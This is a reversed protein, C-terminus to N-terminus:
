EAGAGQDSRRNAGAAEGCSRQSTSSRLRPHSDNEGCVTIARAGDGSLAVSIITSFHGGFTRVTKGTQCDWLIAGTLAFRGDASLAVCWISKPAPFDHVVQGTQTERLAAKGDPEQSVLHKGDRSLAVSGHSKDFIQRKKGTTADWLFAPGAGQPATVVHKGDVSMALGTVPGSFGAFTHLNEGSEADWLIAQRSSGTIVRKGDASLAISLVGSPERFTQLKKGSTLDWLIATKDSSGTLLHKGEAAIAISIIADIHGQFTRVKRGTACDWLVADKGYVTAAFKGDDSLAARGSGIIGTPAKSQLVLELRPPEQAVGIIQAFAVVLISLTHNFFRM